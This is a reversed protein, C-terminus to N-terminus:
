LYLQSLFVFFNSWISIFNNLKNWWTPVLDYVDGYDTDIKPGTEVSVCWTKKIM